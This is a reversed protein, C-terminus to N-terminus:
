FQTWPSGLIPTVGLYSFLMIGFGALGIESAIAGKMSNVLRAHLYFSYYFWAITTWLEKATWLWYVGYALFFWVSGAILAFSFFLWGALIFRHQLMELSQVAKQLYLIGTVSGIGMLSFGIIFLIMYLYFWPSNMNPSITDIREQFVALLSLGASFLPLVNMVGEIRKATHLYFYSLSIVFAIFLLIDFRDTVPLRNLLGWRLVLYSLNVVMGAVFFASGQRGGLMGLAYLTSIFLVVFLHSM